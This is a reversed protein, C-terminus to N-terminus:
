SAQKPAANYHLLGFINGTKKVWIGTAVTEIFLLWNELLGRKKAREM